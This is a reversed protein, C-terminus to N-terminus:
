WTDNARNSESATKMLELVRARMAEPRVGILALISTAGGGDIRLLALLLHETGVYPHGLARAEEAASALATHLHSTFATGVPQAVSTPRVPAQSGPRLPPAFIFDVAHRAGQLKIGHERLVHAAVGGEERLCGLLLHEPHVDHHGLAQAEETALRVAAHARQTFRDLRRPAVGGGALAPRPVSRSREIAARHERVLSHALDGITHQWLGALGMLGKAVIADRCCDTFLQLMEAGYARRFSRPYLRLLLRYLHRSAALLRSMRRRNM